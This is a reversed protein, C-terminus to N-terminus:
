VRRPFDNDIATFLTKVHEIHYTYVFNKM